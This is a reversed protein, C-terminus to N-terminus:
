WRKFPFLILNANYYRPDNTVEKEIWDPREFSEAESDLEIEAVVLGENDSHFVDVEWLKGKFYIEYRTKSLEGESFSNLLETADPLPIAYEFESRSMGITSGKITIFADTSTTRIRITKDKGNLLYGQRYLKGIPKELAEWKSQNILFKREIEIAM